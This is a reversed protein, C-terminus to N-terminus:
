KGDIYRNILKGILERDKEYLILNQTNHIYYITSNARYAYYYHDEKAIVYSSIERGNRMHEIRVLFWPDQDPTSIPKILNDENIYVWNILTIAQVVSGKFSMKYGIPHGKDKSIEYENQNPIFTLPEPLEEACYMYKKKRNLDIKKIRDSKMAKNLREVKDVVGKATKYAHGYNKDVSNDIEDLLIRGKQRYDTNLWRGTSPNKLKDIHLSYQQTHNSFSVRFCVMDYWIYYSSGNWMGYAHVECKQKNYYTAIDHITNIDNM